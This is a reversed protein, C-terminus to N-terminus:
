LKIQGNGCDAKEKDITPPVHSFKIRQNHPVNDITITDIKDVNVDRVNQKLLGFLEMPVDNHYMGLNNQEIQVETIFASFVNNIFM